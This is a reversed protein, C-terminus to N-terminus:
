MLRRQKREDQRGKKAKQGQIMQAKLSKIRELLMSAPEDNPVQPVLKGEFACKLISQRLKGAQRSDNVVTKEVEEVISFRQEIEEAIAEQEALPPVPLPMLAFDTISVHQIAAGRAKAHIQEQTFPSEIIAALYRREMPCSRLWIVAVSQNICFQKTTEVIAVRGISGDKTLLIDGQVPKDKESLSHFVADTTRHTTSFDIKRGFVHKATVIPFGERVHPVPRTFGYTVWNSIQNWTAWCWREPLDPLDTTNPPKAEGYKCKKPDQGKAILDEEWKKLQEQRIRVLLESAPELEGRHTRRWEETLKGDFASKLVSQRYRKLQAKVTELSKVGANLKTLLEEIRAVIRLQESYPPLPILLSRIHNLNVRPRTTGKIKRELQKSVAESNIAYAVAKRSILDQAVRVRVLDAVVIGWEMDEPIICAKGLPEGLKTVVIDGRSFSHRRLEQAKKLTIHEINKRVFENRQINQLRIVPVGDSRYESAKLDSGFPGDVIDQRPSYCMEELKAWVWGRPLVRMVLELSQEAERSM